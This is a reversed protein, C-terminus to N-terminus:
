LIVEKKPYKREEEWLGLVNVNVTEQLNRILARPHHGVELLNIIQHFLNYEGKRVDGIKGNLM